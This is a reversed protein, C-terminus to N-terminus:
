KQSTSRTLVLTKNSVTSHETEILRWPEKVLFLLCHQMKLAWSVQFNIHDCDVGELCQCSKKAAQKAPTKMCCTNLNSEKKPKVDASPRQEHAAAKLVKTREELVISHKRRTGRGKDSEKKVM